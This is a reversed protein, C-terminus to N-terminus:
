PDPEGAAPAEYYLPAGTAPDSFVHGDRRALPTGSRASLLIGDTERAWPQHDAARVFNSGDRSYAFVSDVTIHHLRRASTPIDPETETPAPSMRALAAARVKGVLTELEDVAEHLRQTIEDALGDLRLVAFLFMGTQFAHRVIEDYLDDASRDPGVEPSM